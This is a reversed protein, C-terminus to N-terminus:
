VTTQATNAAHHMVEEESDGVLHIACGSVVCELIMSM